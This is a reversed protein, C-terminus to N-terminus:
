QGIQISKFNDFLHLPAFLETNKFKPGFLPKIVGLM